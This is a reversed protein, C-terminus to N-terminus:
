SPYDWLQARSSSSSLYSLPDVHAPFVKLPKGSLMNKSCELKFHLARWTIAKANAIPCWCKFNYHLPYSPCISLWALSPLLVHLRFPHWTKKVFSARITSCSTTHLPPPAFSHPDLLMDLSTHDVFCSGYCCVVDDVLLISSFLIFFKIWCDILLSKNCSCGVSSSVWFTSAGITM